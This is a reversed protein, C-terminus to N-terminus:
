SVRYRDLIDRRLEIGLGPSSPVELTGNKPAIPRIALEDRLPNESVDYEVLIPYPENETHPWVPTHAAFHVAANQAIASGWCPVSVRLNGAASLLAVTKMEDFGGGSTPSPQVVDIGRADILRKFEAIGCHAEGAALRIPARARLEAYGAFDQPPLPEECWHINFPEIKRMSELAVDVTYSGNYDVMLLMCDGLINRADRVRQVDSAIGAGIKIKVGVFDSRRLSALQGEIGNRLDDTFYGTTAYCALKKPQRGGLLDCVPLSLTKGMADYVAINLGGLAAIFHGQGGFHYLKNRLDAAVINFDYLSQGLFFPTLIKMYERIVGPPGAADGIGVVGEDTALEVVCCTRRDNVFRANGYRRGPPMVYELPTVQIKSIKPMVNEPVPHGAASNSNV